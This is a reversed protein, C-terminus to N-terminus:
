QVLFQKILSSGSKNDKFHILIDYFGTKTCKFMFKEFYKDDMANTAVLQNGDLIQVVAKGPFDGIHNLVTFKYISNKNLTITVFYENEYQNASIKKLEFQFEKIFIEKQSFASLSVSQLVIILLLYNLLSKM